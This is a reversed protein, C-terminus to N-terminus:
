ELLKSAKRVPQGDVLVAGEAILDRARDRSRALGRALLLADARLKSALGVEAPIRRANPKRSKGVGSLGKYGIHRM